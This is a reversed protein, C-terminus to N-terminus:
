IPALSIGVQTQQCHTSASRWIVLMPVTKLKNAPNITTYNSM